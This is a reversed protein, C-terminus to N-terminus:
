YLRSTALLLSGTSSKDAVLQRLREIMEERSALNVTEIKGKGQKQSALGQKPIPRQESAAKGMFLIKSNVTSSANVM